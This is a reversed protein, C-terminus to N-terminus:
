SGVPEGSQRAPAHAEIALQGDKVSVVVTAGDPVEGAILKRGLRTELERQLYRKLPRAGYIPDYGQNGLFTKADDTFTYSM